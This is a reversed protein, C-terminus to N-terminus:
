IYIYICVGKVLKREKVLNSYICLGLFCVFMHGNESLFLQLTKFFFNSILCQCVKGPVITRTLRFLVGFFYDGHDITLQM